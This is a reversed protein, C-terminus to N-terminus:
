RREEFVAEIVFDCDAFDALDTTGSVLARLRNAEDASIRRKTLLKDVEASIAALGRDVREQDLDSIM